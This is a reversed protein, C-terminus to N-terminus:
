NQQYFKDVFHVMGMWWGGPCHFRKLFFEFTLFEWGALGFNTNFKQALFPFCRSYVQMVADTDLMIKASCASCTAGTGPRLATHKTTHECEFFALKVLCYLISQDLLEPQPSKSLKGHNLCFRMKQEEKEGRECPSFGPLVFFIERM